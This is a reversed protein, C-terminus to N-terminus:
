DGQELVRPSVDLAYVHECREALPVTNRGVGCGFDLARKGDMTFGTQAEIQASLRAMQDRGKEWFRERGAADFSDLPTTEQSKGQLALGARWAYRKWQQVPRYMM